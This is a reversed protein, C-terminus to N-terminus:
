REGGGAGTTLHLPLLGLSTFLFFSFSPSVKKLLHKKERSNHEQVLKFEFYLVVCHSKLCVRLIESVSPRKSPEHQLLKHILAKALPGVKSPVYYENKKIRSLFMLNNAITWM